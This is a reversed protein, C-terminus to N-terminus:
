YLSSESISFYKGLWKCIYRVYSKDSFSSVNFSLSLEDFFCVPESKFFDESDECNGILLILGRVILLEYSSDLDSLNMPCSPAAPDATTEEDEESAGFVALTIWDKKNWKTKSEKSPIERKCVM